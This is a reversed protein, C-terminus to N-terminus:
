FVHCYIYRESSLLIEICSSWRYPAEFAPVNRPPRIPDSDFRKTRFRCCYLINVLDLTHIQASEAGLLRSSLLVTSLDRYGRCVMNITNRIM